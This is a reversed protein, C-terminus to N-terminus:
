SIARKCRECLGERYGFSTANKAKMLTRSCRSKQSLSALLNVSNVSSAYYRRDYLRWGLFANSCVRLECFFCVHRCCFSLDSVHGDDKVFFIMSIRCWQGEIARFADRPRGCASTEFVVRRRSAAMAITSTVSNM